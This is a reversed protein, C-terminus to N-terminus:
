SSLLNKIHVCFKQLLSFIQSITFLNFPIFTYCHVIELCVSDNLFLFGHFKEYYVINSVLNVSFEDLLKFWFMNM